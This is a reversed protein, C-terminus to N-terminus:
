SDEPCEPGTRVSGQGVDVNFNQYECYQFPIGPWVEGVQCSGEKIKYCAPEDDGNPNECKGNTISDDTGCEDGGAPGALEEWCPDGPDTGAIIGCGQNLEGEYTCEKSIVCDCSALGRVSKLAEIPVTAGFSSLTTIAAFISVLTTTKM